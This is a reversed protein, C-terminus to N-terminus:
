FDDISQGSEELAEESLIESASAYWVTIGLRWYSSDTPQGSEELTEESLIESASATWDVKEMWYLSNLM